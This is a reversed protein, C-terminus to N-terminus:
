SWLGQRDLRRLRSLYEKDIVEHHKTCVQYYVLLYHKSVSSATVVSDCM